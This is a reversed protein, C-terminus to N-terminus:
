EPPYSGVNELLSCTTEKNFNILGNQIIQKVLDIETVGSSHSNSLLGSM